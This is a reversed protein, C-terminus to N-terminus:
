LFLLYCYRTQSLVNELEQGQNEEEHRLLKKKKLENKILEVQESFDTEDDFDKPKMRRVRKVDYKGLAAISGVKSYYGEENKSEVENESESDSSSDNKRWIRRREPKEMGVRKQDSLDRVRPVSRISDSVEPVSRYGRIQSYNNLNTLNRNRSDIQPSAQSQIQAQPQTQHTEPGDLDNWLDLAGDKMFRDALAKIHQDPSIPNHTTSSSSYSSPSLTSRIHSRIRAQYLQKEQELLNRQKEKARKEHMRKWKWKSVGGPFTRPGGGM